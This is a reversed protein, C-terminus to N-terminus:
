WKAIPCHSSRWALKSLFATREPDMVCGCDRHGCTQKGQNFLPCEQCIAFNAAIEEQTRYAASEDGTLAAEIALPVQQVVARAFNAAKRMWGPEEPASTRMEQTAPASTRVRCNAHCREPPDPTVIVRGCQSCKKADGKLAVFQCKM